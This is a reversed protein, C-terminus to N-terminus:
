QNKQKKQYITVKRNAIIIAKKNKKDPAIRARMRASDRHYSNKKVRIMKSSATGLEQPEQKELITMKRNQVM